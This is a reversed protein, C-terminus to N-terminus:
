GDAAAPLPAVVRLAARRVTCELPTSGLDISDARCPLRRTSDVLVHAARYTRTHPTYARRGFSISALHRLLEFKSFHRFVTVDLKGDDVRAAPAVTMAMGTYPGNSITVMLARTRMQEGDLRLDIRTPRYRLALWFLRRLSSYDGETLQTAYKFMAANMGVSANEYFLEGNAVGVDILRTHGAALVAAAEELDRPLGLMRAINMVSGLPLIGLATRTDLLAGGITGITGDGGAAVVLPRGDAGAQSAVRTADEASDTAVIEAAIGHRGLLGSIEDATIARRLAKGGANANLLVLARDV